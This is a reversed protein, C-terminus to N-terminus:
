AIGGAGVNVKKEGAESRSDSAKERLYFMQSRFRLAWTRRKICSVCGKNDPPNQPPVGLDSIHGLLSLGWGGNGPREPETIHSFQPDSPDPVVM